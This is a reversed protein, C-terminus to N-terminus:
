GVGGNGDRRRRRGGGEGRCRATLTFRISSPLVPGQTVASSTSSNAINLRVWSSIHQLYPQIALLLKAM